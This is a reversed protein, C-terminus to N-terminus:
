AWKGAAIRCGPGDAHRSRRYVEVRVPSVLDSSTLDTRGGSRELDARVSDGAGTVWHFDEEDVFEEGLLHQPHHPDRPGDLVGSVLGLREEERVLLPDVLQALVVGVDDAVRDGGPHVQVEQVDVLLHLLDAGVHDRDEAARVRGERWLEDLALADVRDTATLALQRGDVEQVLELGALVEVLRLVEPELVALRALDDAVRLPRQDLVEVLEAEGVARDDVVGALDVAVGVALHEDRLAAARHVAREAEVVRPLLLDVARVVLLIVRLRETSWTMASILAQLSCYLRFNTWKRSSM